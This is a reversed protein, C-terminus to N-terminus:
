FLSYQGDANPRLNFSTTVEPVGSDSKVGETTCKYGEGQKARKQSTKQKKKGICIFNGQYGQEALFRKVDEYRSDLITLEKYPSQFDLRYGARVLRKQAEHVSIM